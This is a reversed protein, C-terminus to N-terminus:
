ADVEFGIAMFSQSDGSKNVVRLRLDDDDSVRFENLQTHWEDSKSDITVSVDYSGDGAPDTERVIDAEGTGAVETVQAAGTEAADGDVVLDDGDDVDTADWVVTDNIAM